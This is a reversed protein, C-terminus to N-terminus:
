RIVCMKRTEVFGGVQLRYLYVGSAVGSANWQVSFTGPEKAENVLTAVERGLLDFVKLMVQSVEPIQYRIVTSPNFPNPYNQELAFELPVELQNEAFTLGGNTTHLITGNNGVAWGNNADIFTVCKLQGM